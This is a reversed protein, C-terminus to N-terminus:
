ENEERRQKEHDEEILTKQGDKRSRWRICLVTTIVAATFAVLAVLVHGGANGFLLSAGSYMGATGGIVSIDGGFLLRMLCVTIVICGGGVAGTKRRERVRRLAEMRAHLSQIREDTTL